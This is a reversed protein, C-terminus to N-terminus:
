IINKEDLYTILEIIHNLVVVWNFHRISGNVKLGKGM